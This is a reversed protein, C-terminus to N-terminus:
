LHEHSQKKAVELGSECFVLKYDELEARFTPNPVLVVDSTGKQYVPEGDEDLKPMTDKPRSVTGHEALKNDRFLNAALGDFMAPVVERIKDRVQIFNTQHTDGLYYLKQIKHGRSFAGTGVNVTVEEHRHQGNARHSLAANKNLM